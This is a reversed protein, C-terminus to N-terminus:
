EIEINLVEQGDSTVGLGLGAIQQEIFPRHEKSRSSYIAFAVKPKWRAAALVPVYPNSVPLLLVDIPPDAAPQAAFNDRLAPYLQQDYFARRATFDKIANYQATLDHLYQDSLAPM